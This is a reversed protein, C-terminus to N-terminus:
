IVVTSDINTFVNNNLSNRDMATVVTRNAVSVIFAASNSLVLTDKAGKAAAKNVAGELNQLDSKSLVIGRDRLRDMAHGSFKLVASNEKARVNQQAFPASDITDLTQKLAREFEGAKPKEAFNGRGGGDIPGLPGVQPMFVSNSM